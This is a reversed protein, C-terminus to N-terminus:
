PFCVVKIKMNSVSLFQFWLEKWHQLHTVPWHLLTWTDFLRSWLQPYICHLLSFYVVLRGDKGHGLLEHYNTDGILILISTGAHSVSTTNIANVVVKDPRTGEGPLQTHSLPSFHPCIYHFRNVRMVSFSICHWMVPVTFIPENNSISALCTHMNQADCVISTVRTVGHGSAQSVWHLLSVM